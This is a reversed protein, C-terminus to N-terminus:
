RGAHQRPQRLFANWGLRLLGDHVRLMGEDFLARLPARLRQRASQTLRPFGIRHIGDNLADDAEIGEDELVTHFLALMLETDPVHDLDRIDDPLRSWDRLRPMRFQESRGIFSGRQVVEHDREVADVREQIRERIRSGLREVGAAELLRQALVRFHVPGEVDVVRRVAADLRAATIDHFSETGGLGLNAPAVARYPVLEFTPIWAPPEGSDPRLASHPPQEDPNRVLKQHVRVLADFASAAEDSM